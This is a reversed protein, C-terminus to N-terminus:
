TIKKIKFIQEEGKLRIAQYISPYAKYFMENSKSCFLKCNNTTRLVYQFSIQKYKFKSLFTPCVNNQFLDM